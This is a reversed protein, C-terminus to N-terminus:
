FFFTFDSIRYASCWLRKPKTWKSSIANRTEWISFVLPHINKISYEEIFFLTLKFSLIIFYPQLECNQLHYNVLIIISSLLCFRQTFYRQCLFTVIGSYFFRQKDSTQKIVSKLQLLHFYQHYLQIIKEELRIQTSISIVQHKSESQFAETM